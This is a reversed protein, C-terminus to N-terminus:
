RRLELLKSSSAQNEIGLYPFIYCFATVVKPDFHSGSNAIIEQRAKLTSFAKRYPRDTTLADYVDAVAIIRAGLPIDNSAAKYYGSGDYKDHHHLIIPLIDGVTEGLPKLMNVGLWAHQKVNIREQSTLVTVKQLIAESVGIKGLDHLLAAVRINETEFPNLKLRKAIMESIVSVRHSHSQTYNDASEIVLSLMEIIGSYTQQLEKKSEENKEYLIGMCYATVILFLAWTSLDIWRLLQTESLTEVAFSQPFFYALFCIIIVSFIASIVAYRKGFFYAGLLVPLYFVNLFARQNIIFFFIFFAIAVLLLIIILERDINFESKLALKKV